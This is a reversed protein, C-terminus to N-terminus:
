GEVVIAVNNFQRSDPGDLLNAVLGRGRLEGVLEEVREHLPWYALAGSAQREATALTVALRGGPRLLSALRLTLALPEPWFYFTHISWIKDVAQDALPLESLDGCLQALQGARRAPRNRRAALGIMPRSRDLGILLGPAVQPAALALGRGAGFGLELARDHPRLGLLGVTWDTEPRHQRAMRRGILQGLLGTPLRHQDDIIRSWAQSLSM